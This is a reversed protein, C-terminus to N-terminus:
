NVLKSIKELPLRLSSNRRVTTISTRAPKTLVVPAFLAEEEADIAAVDDVVNEIVNATADAKSKATADAPKAHLAPVPSGRRSKSVNTM